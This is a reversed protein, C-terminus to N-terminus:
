KQSSQTEMATYLLKAYNQPYGQLWCVFEVNLQGKSETQATYGSFTLRGLTDMRGKGDKRQATMGMSDEWDRSAPTPWMNPLVQERLNAPATRGKRTTSFQREKAEQSRPPLTDMTNPTAWLAAAVAFDTLKIQMPQGTKRNKINNQIRYVADPTATIGGSQANTQPTPWLGCDIEKTPRVSVALQSLQRGSPTVKAKWTMRSMMWGAKPLQTQLRSGTFQALSVSALSGSGRQGSTVHTMLGLAKAQRASLSAHAVVLGCHVVSDGVALNQSRSPLKGAGSEQLSTAAIMDLLNMQDSM